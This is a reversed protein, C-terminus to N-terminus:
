SWWRMVVCRRRCRRCGLRGLCVSLAHQRSDSVCLIPGQEHTTCNPGGNELWVMRPLLTNCPHVVPAGLTISNFIKQSHPVIFLTSYCLLLM